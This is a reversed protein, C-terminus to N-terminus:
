KHKKNSLAVLEQVIKPNKAAINVSETPDNVHDYLETFLPADNPRRRDKWVVLRYDDTRTAYGMVFEEFMKRNWKDGMQAKIKAEIKEIL